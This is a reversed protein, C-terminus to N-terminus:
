PTVTGGTTAGGYNRRRLEGTLFDGVYFQRSLSPGVAVSFPV